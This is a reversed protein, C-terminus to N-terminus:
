EDGQNRDRFAASCIMSLARPKKEQGLLEGLLLFDKVLGAM